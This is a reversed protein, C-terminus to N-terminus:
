ASESAGIKCVNIRVLNLGWRWRRRWLLKYTGIQEPPGPGRLIRLLTVSVGGLDLDNAEGHRYLLTRRLAASPQRCGGGQIQSPADFRTCCASQIADNHACNQAICILDDHELRRRELIIPQARRPVPLSQRTAGGRLSGEKLLM